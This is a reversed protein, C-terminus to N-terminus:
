QNISTITLATFLDRHGRVKHYKSKAKFKAVRIKKDKFSDGVKATVTAGSVFPAGLVPEKGGLMVVQDFTHEDGGVEGRVRVVDGVRVITQAGNVSIIAYDAMVSFIDRFDAGRLTNPLCM